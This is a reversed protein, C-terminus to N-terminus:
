SRLKLRFPWVVRRQNLVLLLYLFDLIVIVTGILALYKAHWVYFIITYSFTGILKFIAIGLSQGSLNGRRYIMSIFLVSMTLNMMYAMYAGWTDGLVKTAFVIVGTALIMSLISYPYFYKTLVKKPWDNKGYKFYTFLIGIDLLFWAINVVRHVPNGDYFVTSFCFEWAVNFALSLFPMGYTRDRIGRNIILIYAICWTTGSIAYLTQNLLDIM